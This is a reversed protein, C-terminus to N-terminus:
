PFQDIVVTKNPIKRKVTSSQLIQVITANLTQLFTKSKSLEYNQLPSFRNLSIIDSNIQTM